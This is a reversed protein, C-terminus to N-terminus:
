EKVAGNHRVREMHDFLALLALALEVMPSNNTSDIPIPDKLTKIGITYSLPILPSPPSSASWGRASTPARSSTNITDLAPM